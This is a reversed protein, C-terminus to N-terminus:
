DIIVHTMYSNATQIDENSHGLIEAAYANNSVLVPKLYKLCYALYINRLDKPQSVCKFKHKKKVANNIPRSYSNNFQESTYEMLEPKMLRLKELSQAIKKYSSLCPIAFSEHAYDQRTKAQGTFILMKDNDPYSEFIATCAIEYFRRGTVVAVSIILDIPHESCMLNEALEINKLVDEKTVAIQHNNKAVVKKMYENKIENMASESLTFITKCEMLKQKDKAEIFYNDLLKRAKSYQLKLTQNNPYQEILFAKYDECAKLKYKYFKHKLREAFDDRKKRTIHKDTQKYGDFIGM